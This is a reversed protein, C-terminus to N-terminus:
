FTQIITELEKVSHFSQQFFKRRDGKYFLTAPIAGSWSPDVRDIWRNADPDDLVVVDPHLKHKKMFPILRSELQSEMDLSVLIVLVSEDSAYKESLEQFYPMEKVCPKCWTAWFNLIVLQNEDGPLYEQLEEFDFVKLDNAEQAFTSGLFSLILTLVLFKEKM